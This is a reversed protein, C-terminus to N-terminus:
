EHNSHEVNNQYLLGASSRLSLDIHTTGKVSHAIEIVKCKIFQGESYGSLPDPVLSDTIETYHVRGSMHPGIQVLLGGVGPLVKSIRGGVIDGENFHCAVKKSIIETPLNSIKFNEQDIRGRPTTSLHRLVLRLIKKEGNINSIYGSVARGVNFRKSFEQLESPECSSDLIFLQATVERTVALWAWEGSVNCVYGTIRQGISFGLDENTIESVVGSSDPKIDRLNSIENDIKSLNSFTFAILLHM